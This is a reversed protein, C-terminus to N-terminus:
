EVLPFSFERYTLIVLIHIYNNIVQIPQKIIFGMRSLVIMCSKVMLKQAMNVRRIDMTLPMFSPGYQRPTLLHVKYMLQDAPEGPRLDPVMAIGLSIVSKSLSQLVMSGFIVCASAFRGISILDENGSVM